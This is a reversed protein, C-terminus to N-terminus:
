EAEDMEVFFPELMALDSVSLSEDRSGVANVVEEFDMDLPELDSKTLMVEQFRQTYAVLEPTGPEIKADQGEQTGTIEHILTVRQKEAIEYEATVRRTYKLIKYALKAPLNIGALKQWSGVSQFIEGLLM